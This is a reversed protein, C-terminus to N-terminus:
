VWFRFLRLELLSYVRTASRSGPGQIRLGLGLVGLGLGQPAGLGQVREAKSDEVRFKVGM